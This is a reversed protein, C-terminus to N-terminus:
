RLWRWRKTASPRDVFRSSGALRRRHPTNLQKRDACGIAFSQFNPVPVRRLLNDPPCPHHQQRVTSQRRFSCRNALAQQCDAAPVVAIHRFAHVPKQLVRFSWRADLRQWRFFVLMDRMHRQVLFRLIRLMPAHAAHHHRGAGGVATDMPDPMPVAQFRIQDVREFDRAVGGLHLACDPALVIRWVLRQDEADVFLALDPDEVAGLAAQRHLLGAGAGHDVVVAVAGLDQKRRKVHRAATDDASAHRAMPVASGRVKQLQDIMLVRGAEIEMRDNVVIGGM